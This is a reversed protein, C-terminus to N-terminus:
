NKLNMQEMWYPELSLDSHTPLSNFFFLYLQTGSLFCPNSLGSRESPSAVM